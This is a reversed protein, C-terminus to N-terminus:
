WRKWNFTVYWIFGSHLLFHTLTNMIKLLKLNHDDLHYLAQKAISYPPTDSTTIIPPMTVYHYCLPWWGRLDSNLDWGSRRHCFQYSSAMPRCNVTCFRSWSDIILYYPVLCLLYIFLYYFHSFTTGSLQNYMVSECLLTPICDTKNMEYRDCHRRFCM